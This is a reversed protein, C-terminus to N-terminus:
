DEKIDANVVETILELLKCLMENVDNGTIENRMCIMNAIIDMWIQRNNRGREM